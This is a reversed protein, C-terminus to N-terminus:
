IVSEPLEKAKKTTKFQNLVTDMNFAPIIRSKARAHNYNHIAFKNNLGKMPSAQLRIKERDILQRYNKKADEHM